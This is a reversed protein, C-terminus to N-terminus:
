PDAQTTMVARVFDAFRGHRGFGGGFYASSQADRPLGLGWRAAVDLRLPRREHVLDRLDLPPPAFRTPLTGRPSEGTRKNKDCSNRNRRWRPDQRCVDLM